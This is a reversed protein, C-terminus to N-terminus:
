MCQTCMSQTCMCQTCMSQTCMCLTCMCLTGPEQHVRTLYPACAHVYAYSACAHMPYVHMPHVHVPAWAYLSSLLCRVLHYTGNMLTLKGPASATAGAVTRVLTVVAPWAHGVIQRVRTPM